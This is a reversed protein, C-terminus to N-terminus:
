PGAAAAALDVRRGDGLSARVALAAELAHLGDTISTRPEELGLAVAVFHADERRYADAFVDRWSRVPASVAGSARVVLASDARPDGAFM